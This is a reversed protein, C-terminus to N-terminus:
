YIDLQKLIDRKLKCLSTKCLDEETLEKGFVLSKINMSKYTFKKISQTYDDNYIIAKDLLDKAYDTFNNYVEELKFVKKSNSVKNKEDSCVNLKLQLKEGNVQTNVINEIEFRAKGEFSDEYPYIHTEKTMNRSLKLKRNCVPCSPIFNYLCLAYEPYISQSYFHDLDAMTTDKYEVTYNINCYPCVKVDITKLIATRYTTKNLKNDLLKYKFYKKFTNEYGYLNKSIDDRCKSLTHNLNYQNSQLAFVLNIYEKTGKYKNIFEKTAESNNTWLMSKLIIRSNLSYFDKLFKSTFKYNYFDKSLLFEKIKSENDLRIIQNKYECDIMIETKNIEDLIKKALNDYIKNIEKNKSIDEKCHIKIM